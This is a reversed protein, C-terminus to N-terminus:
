GAAEEALITLSAQVAEEPTVKGTVIDSMGPVFMPVRAADSIQDQVAGTAAGTAGKVMDMGALGLSSLTIGNLDVGNKLATTTAGAFKTVMADSTMYEVFSVAAARKEPDDWCKRTIYYGSSLGTIIDGGKRSGQGGFYTVTFNKLLNEDAPVKNDPDAGCAKEIGGVKWSGDILFAAKGETFMQFTEDDTASLTNKPFFGSDYLGKLDTLGAVWAKYQANETNFKGDVPLEPLVNHGAPDLHNYICYEFWYHPIHGLAAAIPTYGADKIKQCDALFQEYTYDPGPVAVGAADLVTKNAFMGEWFGNVPVSYNKGDYPSAGMMDDKMNSAYEPYEARIEDISVVKDAAVIPNADKGNFFFLIDPESGMEFDALITSKFTEDSITSRDEIQNGTESQWGAVGSQFNPANTDEGAWTTVVSLTVS